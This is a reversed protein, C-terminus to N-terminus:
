LSVDNIKKGTLALRISKDMRRAAFDETADSLTQIAAKILSTDEVQKAKQLAHLNHEITTHEEHTLLDHDQTLASEIANILREAHIQQEKLARLKQDEESFQTTEKLMRVIDTENLGYSPKVTISAETNSHIERASVSLIGNADVQYIVQIRAAGATMPPIDRLEFRALSRCDSVREREGQLVHILMSTQGDKFTTFEQMRTVPITTNRDIIKEVLDGMTEIGLSLPLVDLLLWNKDASQHGALFNAQLAAGLAVVQDPDLNSLPTKNFYHQVALRVRPMRTAGGVLVIDKVESITVKADNLAKRILGITREILPETIKQFHAATLCFDLIQGSTFKIYLPASEQTSLQERAHRLANLLARIDKSAIDSPIEGQHMLWDYMMQDFDDGGLASDGGTALVEFVGQKLKLISIDFTGGGLDYIAYIGEAANDLGYAIAAATPENLLRLVNIGALRAADKTAQRQADDFYAPVTIVAGLLEGGLSKEARQRLTKLIESSIEVPTKIGAATRLQVMGETNVFDYPSAQHAIDKLSRGIFRKVSIITNKADHAGQELAHFGTEIAGKESYHVVSPLLLRNQDDALIKAKHDIVSAVLSHTTGLDIGVVWHRQHPEPALGPEHIQLLAM